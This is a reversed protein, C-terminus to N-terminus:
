WVFARRRIDVLAHHHGDYFRSPNIPRGSARYILLAALATDHLEELAYGAEGALHVVWGARCHTTDCTHWDNMQLTHPRQTVAYIVQDIHNIHPVFREQLQGNHSVQRALGCCDSCYRCDSSDACADCFRCHSCYTCWTSETCEICYSCHTCNICGHCATCHACNRCESCDKLSRLAAEAAAESGFHELTCTNNNQDSVTTREPNWHLRM